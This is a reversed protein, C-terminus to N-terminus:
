AAQASLHLLDEGLLLGQGHVRKSNLHFETGIGVGPKQDVQQHALMRLFQLARTASPRGAHEGGADFVYSRVIAPWYAALTEARDFIDAGVIRGGLSVVVGSQDPLPGMALLEDLRSELRRSGDHIAQTASAGGTRALDQGVSEWIASQDSVRASSKAFSKAVSLNMQRRVRRPALTAGHEFGQRNGWRGAEVCSVPLETTLKAAALVSVNLVRNQLGGVVTDGEPFLVPLDATSVLTLMSVAATQQEEFWVVKSTAATIGPLYEPGTGQHLYVPFLSVGARTVPRGVSADDITRRTRSNLAANM